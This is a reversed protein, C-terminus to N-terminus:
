PRIQQRRHYPMQNGANSRPISSSGSGHRGHIIVSKPDMSRSMNQINGQPPLTPSTKESRPASSIRKRYHVVRFGENDEEEE